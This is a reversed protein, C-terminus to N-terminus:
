QGAEPEHPTNPTCQDAPLDGGDRVVRSWVGPSREALMRKCRKCFASQYATFGPPVPEPEQVWARVMADIEDPRAEPNERCMRQRYHEFGADILAFTAKIREALTPFHRLDRIKMGCGPCHEQRVPCEARCGPCPLTVPPTPSTM